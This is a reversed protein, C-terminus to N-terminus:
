KQYNLTRRINRKCYYEYISHAIRYYFNRMYNIPMFLWRGVKHDIRNLLRLYEANERLLQVPNPMNNLFLDKHYNFIERNIEYTHDINSTRVMSGLRIRYYFHIRPIKYVSVGIEILSLWFEWDQCGYKMEKKYGGVKEWDSKKFFASCFIINGCLMRQLSYDPLKWEGNKIGFNKVRSYVIGIGKENEMIQVAEEIYHPSIRDDADLPLIYFGRAIRIGINRAEALGNNPTTIVTCKPKNYHALLNNTFDDTSGDNVIIVEFNEYSSKLVSQVSEDLYKGQNYCPIIVSVLIM